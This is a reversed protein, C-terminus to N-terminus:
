NVYYSSKRTSVLKPKLSNLQLDQKCTYINGIHLCM